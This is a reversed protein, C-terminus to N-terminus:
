SLNMQNYEEIVSVAEYEDLSHTENEVDKISTLTLIEERQLNRILFLPIPVDGISFGWFYTQANSIDAVKIRGDVLFVLLKFPLIVRGGTEINEIVVQHKIEDGTIFFIDSPDKTQPTIAYFRDCYTRNKDVSVSSDFKLITSNMAGEM